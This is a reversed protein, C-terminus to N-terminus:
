LMSRLSSVFGYDKTSYFHPYTSGSSKVFMNRSFSNQVFPGIKLLPTKSM